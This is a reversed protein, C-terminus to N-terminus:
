VYKAQMTLRAERPSFNQLCLYGDVAKRISCHKSVVLLWKVDFRVLIEMAENTLKDEPISQTDTLRGGCRKIHVMHM